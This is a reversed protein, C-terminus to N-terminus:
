LPSIGEANCIEQMATSKYVHFNHLSNKLGPLSKRINRVAIIQLEHKNLFPNRIGNINTVKFHALLGLQYYIETRLMYDPWRINCQKLLLLYFIILFEAVNFMEFQLIYKPILFGSAWLPPIASGLWRFIRAARFLILFCYFTFHLIVQNVLTRLNKAKAETANARSLSKMRFKQSAVLITYLCCSIWLVNSARLSSPLNEWHSYVNNFGM